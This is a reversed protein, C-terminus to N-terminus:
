LRSKFEFFLACDRYDDPDDYRLRVFVENEICPSLFFRDSYSFFCCLFLFVDKCSPLFEEDSQPYPFTDSMNVPRVTTGV